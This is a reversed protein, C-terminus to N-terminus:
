PSRVENNWSILALPHVYALPFGLLSVMCIFKFALKDANTKRFKIKTTLQLIQGPEM